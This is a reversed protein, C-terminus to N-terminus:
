DDDDEEGPEGLRVVQGTLGSLIGTENGLVYLEGRRDQAWGTVALGLGDRGDIALSQVQGQRAVLLRGLSCAAITFNIRM